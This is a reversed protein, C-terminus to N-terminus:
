MACDNEVRGAAKTWEGESYRFVRKQMMMTDQIVVTTLNSPVAATTLSFSLPSFNGGQYIISICGNRFVM